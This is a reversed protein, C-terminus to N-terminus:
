GFFRKLRAIRVTIRYLRGEMEKVEGVILKRGYKIRTKTKWLYETNPLTLRCSHEYRETIINRAADERHSSPFFLKFTSPVCDV